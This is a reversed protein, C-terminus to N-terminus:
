RRICCPRLEHSINQLSVIRKALGTTSVHAEEYEQLFGTSRGGTAKMTASTIPILRSAWTSGPPDDYQEGVAM